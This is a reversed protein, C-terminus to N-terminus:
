KEVENQAESEMVKEFEVRAREVVAMAEGARRMGADEGKEAADLAVLGRMRGVIRRVATRGDDFLSEELQKTAQQWSGQMRYLAFVTGAALITGSEYISSTLSFYTLGSLGGSLGVISLTRFVLQQATFQLSAIAASITNARSTSVSASLPIQLTPASLSVSPTGSSNTIIPQSPPLSTANPVTLQAQLMPVPPMAPSPDTVEEAAVASSPPPAVLEVPSIGVQSLRGSLEYVARETRPLWANNILDSLILGVDDVRWFLKYWALKRWNRSSWASTLGSQLESHANRSFEDIATELNTRSALSLKSSSAVLAQDSMVYAQVSSAAAALLSSILTRVPRPVLGSKDTVVSLWGQLAPIGSDVWKHEYTTAEDISTRIAAIGEEATQADIIVPDGQKTLRIGHQEMAVQVSLRDEGSHFSTSALLEALTMLEGLGKTVVLTSHVPQSIMTQRGTAATPTGITPSLFMDAPIRRGNDSGGNISSGISSVLIELNAKELVNSPVSLTPISTRTAPLNTNAPQGYRILLGQDSSGAELLEKEWVAEKELADALLLRVIRRATDQVNLGLVAIRIKPSESELGQQALQLRSLSVHASAKSRLEGLAAYLPQLRAPINKSANIATVSSLTSAKRSPLSGPRSRRM